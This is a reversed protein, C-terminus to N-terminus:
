QQCARRAQETLDKQAPIKELAQALAQFEVFAAKQEAKRQLDEVYRRVENYENAEIIYAGFFQNIIELDLAGKRHYFGLDDFFGLYRNLEDNNFQGKEKDYGVYLKKCQEIATRIKFFTKDNDERYFSKSLENGLQIMQIDKTVELNKSFTYFGFAQAILFGLVSGAVGIVWERNM